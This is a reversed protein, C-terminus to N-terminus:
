EPFKKLINLVGFGNWKQVAELEEKCVGVIQVFEVTGCPGDVTPLQPDKDLLIHHIKSFQKGDLGSHWSM